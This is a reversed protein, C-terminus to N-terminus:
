LSKEDQRRQWFVSDKFRAESNYVKLRTELYDQVGHAVKLSYDILPGTSGRLVEPVADAVTIATWLATTIGHSSLPDFAAATDGVAAWGADAAPAIWTTGASVLEPPEDLGFNAEALWRKIHVSANVLNKFVDVDRTVERPLLDPDTYYNLALRGDGLLSAYWWGDFVSEILTARTPAVVSDARQRPFAVLAALQDARYREAKDRALIAMRGSADIVFQARVVKGEAVLRWNNGERTIESVAGDFRCVGSQIALDLLETEFRSRDIVTGPGELHVIANREAIHESGWASFMTNAERHYYRDLLHDAGVRKLLPRAAPALHEGPKNKMEFSPAIWIPNLGLAKLRLCAVSGAIGNGIVAVEHLEEHM